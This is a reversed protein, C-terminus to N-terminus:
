GSSSLERTRQRMQCFINYKEASAAIKLITRRGHEILKGPLEVILWRVVDHRMGHRCATTMAHHEKHDEGEMERANYPAEPSHLPQLDNDRNRFPSRQRQLERQTPIGDWIRGKARKHPEEIHARWPM